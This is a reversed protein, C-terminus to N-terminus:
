SNLISSPKKDPKAYAFRNFLKPASYSDLGNIAIGDAIELNIWGDDCLTEEPIFIEKIAGIILLTGNEKIKYENIFECAIKIHAEKVFPAKWKNLYESTLGTATFESIDEHYAAATQHSNTIISTNIHNVTFIGTSKINLYTHRSVTTPRTIFGLLAPNSGLHTVSSFVALNEVGSQSITGLLNASKYGTISNIFNARYRKEMAKIANKDFHLIKKMM